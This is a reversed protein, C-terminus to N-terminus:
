SDGYVAFGGSDDDASCGGFRPAEAASAAACSWGELELAASSGQGGALARRSYEDWLAKAGACNVKGNEVEITIPTRDAQDARCSEGARKARSARKSEKPAAAAVSAVPCDAETWSDPGYNLSLVSQDQFLASCGDLEGVEAGAAEPDDPVEDPVSANAATRKHPSKIPPWTQAPRAAPASAPVVTRSGL